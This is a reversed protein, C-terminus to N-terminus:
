SKPENNLGLISKIQENCASMYNKIAEGDQYWETAMRRKELVQMLQFLQDTNYNKAANVSNRFEHNIISEQPM